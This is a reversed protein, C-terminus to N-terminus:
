ATAREANLLSAGVLSPSDIYEFTNIDAIVGNKNISFVNWVTGERDSPIFYKRILSSGSYVEINAGSISMANSNTSEKNTYDHVSYVFGNELLNWASVTVTECGNGHTDDRDLNATTGQSRSFYVHDTAGTTTVASYHSDLDAPTPGWRLVIRYGSNSMTPSLVANQDGTVRGPLVVVNFYKTVYGIKTAEITYNGSRLGFIVSFVNTIDFIYRGESNTSVDSEATTGSKNNWGSRIKLSVGSIPQGTVADTIQGSLGGMHSGSGHVLMSTELYTTSASEVTEYSSFPIYGNKTIKIYYEGKPLDKSYSGNADTDISAYVINGQKIIVTANSIPARTTSNLVKGDIKGNGSSPTLSVTKANDSVIFMLSVTTGNIVANASYIGNYLYAKFPATDTIVTSGNDRKIKVTTGSIAAGNNDSVTFTTRWSENPCEGGGFVIKGEHISSSDNIISVFFKGSRNGFVPLAGSITVIEFEFKDEILDCIDYEVEVVASLYWGFTGDICLGCAHKSEADTLEAIKVEAEASITLGGEIVFELELVDDLLALGVSLTPGFKLEARGEANLSSSRSKEDIKNKSTRGDSMQFVIGSKCFEEGKFSLGGELSWALQICAEIEITLAPVPLPIPIEGLEIEKTKTTGGIDSTDDNDIKATIHVDMTKETSVYAEFYLDDKGFHVLDYVIEIHISGEFGVTGGLELNDGLETYASFSQNFTLTEDIRVDEISRSVSTKPDYSQEPEDLPLEEGGMNVKLVDYFEDLSVNDAAIIEGTNDANIIISGIEFMYTTKDDCIFLVKDGQTLAKVTDNANDLLYKNQNVSDVAISNETNNSHIVIVSDNVVGFNNNVSNDFNLVTKGKFDNITQNSFQEYATTYKICTYPDCLDSSEANLLRAVIKYHDPLDFTVPITIEQMESYDPTQAAIFGIETDTNEDLFQVVLACIDNNNITVTVHSDGMVVNTISYVTGGGKSAGYVGDGGDPNGWGAYLVTDCIIPSSFDFQTVCSTESYWGTFAFMEKTPSPPETASTNPAVDQTSYVGDIEDSIMFTVRYSDAAPPDVNGGAVWKAYLTISNHVATSFDFRNRYQRDTYWGDFTYGDLTPASPEIAKQGKTIMQMAPLNSADKTGVYFFVFCVNNPLSDIPKTGTYQTTTTTTSATTSTTTTTAAERQPLYAKVIWDSVASMGGFVYATEPDIEAIYQKLAPDVTSNDTMVVTALNKAALVGGTLADPYNRGTAFAVKKGFLSAFRKAVILATGYRDVGGLREIDNIGAKNLSATVTNGVAATGGLVFAKDAGCSKLYESTASDLEGSAPSYVIACKKLAAAASASLTDPYNAASAVFVESAKGGRLADLNIAIDRATEFRTAGGIRVVTYGKGKLESEIETSVAAPGGLIYVTKAGLAAIRNLVRADVSKGRVLFMPADLAYALPVAPLADAYTDASALVVSEASSWGENSILVATEIRDAGGMRKISAKTTSEAGASLSTAPLLCITMLFVLLVAIIKNISKM